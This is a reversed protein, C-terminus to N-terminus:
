DGSTEEIRDAYYRDLQTLVPLAPIPAMVEVKPDAGAFALETNNQSAWSRMASRVQALKVPDDKNLKQQMDFNHLTLQENLQRLRKVEKRLEQEVEPAAIAKIANWTPTTITQQEEDYPWESPWLSPQEFGDLPTWIFLQHAAHRKVFKLLYVLSSGLGTFQEAMVELQHAADPEAPGQILADILDPCLHLNVGIFQRKQCGICCIYQEHQLLIAM